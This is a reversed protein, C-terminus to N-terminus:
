VLQGQLVMKEVIDKLGLLVQKVRKVLRVKRGKVVKKVLQVKFVQIAQTDLKVMMAM